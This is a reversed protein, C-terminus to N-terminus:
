ESVRGCRANEQDVSRRWGQLRAERDTLIRTGLLREHSM